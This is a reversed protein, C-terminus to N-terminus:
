VTYSSWRQICPSSQHSPITGEGHRACSQSPGQHCPPDHRRFPSITCFTVPSKEAATYLVGTHLTAQQHSGGFHVSQIEESYKCSYNESFDVHLLCENTGLSERVQRYARFQWRINFVHWRFRFLRDHFESVVAEETKQVTKKVTIMSRKGTEEGSIIKTNDELSWQTLAIETNAPPRLITQTTYVCDECEGYACLKSKSNCMTSDVMEELNKEALLGHSYLNNAIFQLNEHTKCQCTVRDAERPVVVWFPRLNCFGAYSIQHPNESLFKQHLNKMTDTLLRKQEKKKNKTVTQKRGTTMRSIDDRLYFAKVKEKCEISLRNTKNREFTLAGGDARQKKSFGLSAQTARQLRYKKTIKGTVTKAILQRERHKKSNKYKDRIEQIISEHLLLRKRISNNVTQNRLLADVTSRPSETGVALRQWRKKYKEKKRKESEM